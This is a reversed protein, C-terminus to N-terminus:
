ENNLRKLSGMLKVLELRKVNISNIFDRTALSNDSATWSTSHLKNKMDNIENSLKQIENDM